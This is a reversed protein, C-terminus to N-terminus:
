IPGRSERVAMGSPEGDIMWVGVVTSVDVGEERRRFRPPEALEQVIFDEAGYGQEEGRIRVGSPHSLTIDAGERALIP